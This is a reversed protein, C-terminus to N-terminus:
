ELVRVELPYSKPYRVTVPKNGASALVLKGSTLTSLEPSTVYRASLGDMNNFIFNIKNLYEVVSATDYRGKEEPWASEYITTTLFVTDHSFLRDANGPGHILLISDIFFQDNDRLIADAQYRIEVKKASVTIIKETTNLCSCAGALLILFLRNNM